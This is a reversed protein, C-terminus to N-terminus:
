RDFLSDHGNRRVIAGLTAAATFGAAQRDPRQLGEDGDDIM